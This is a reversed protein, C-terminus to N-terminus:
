NRELLVDNPRDIDGGASGTTWFSFFLCWFRWCVETNQFRCLQVVVVSGKAMAGSQRQGTSFFRTRRQAQINGSLSLLFGAFIKFIILVSRGVDDQYWRIQEGRNVFPASSWLTNGRTVQSRPNSRCFTCSVINTETCWRARKVRTSSLHPYGYPLGAHWWVECTLVVFPTPSLTLRQM